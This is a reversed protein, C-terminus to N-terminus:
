SRTTVLIAGASHGTGFRLTAESANLFRVAEVDRVPLLDLHELHRAIGDVYARVREVGRVVRVGRGTEDAEVSPGRGRLWRPRLEQIAQLCSYDPLAALQSRTLADFGAEPEAAGSSTGSAACGALVLLVAALPRTLAAATM